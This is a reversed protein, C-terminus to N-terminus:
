VRAATNAAAIHPESPADAEVVSRLNGRPQTKRMIYFSALGTPISLALDLLSITIAIGIANSASVGEVVLAGAWWLQGTGLGALGQIPITSLFTRLALVLWVSWLGLHVGVMAFLAGYQLLTAVRCVATSAVLTALHKRRTLEAAGEEVGPVLGRLRPIRGLIAVVARRGPPSLAAILVILFAGGILGVIWIPDSPENVGDLAAAVVVILALSVIDLIRGIVSAATSRRMGVGLRRALFVFTADASPGPLLLGAVWSVGTQGLLPWWPVPTALLSRTRWARGVLFVSGGLLALAVALVSPHFPAIQGTPSLHKWLLVLLGFSAIGIATSRLIRRSSIPGSVRTLV